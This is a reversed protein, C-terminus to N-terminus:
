GRPARLDYCVLETETRLLLRGHALAPLPLTTGGDLARFSALERPGDGDVEYLHVKGREDVLLLRGDVALVQGYGHRGEKWALKGTDVDLRALKGEDLGYVVGDLLVPEDFRTKFRPSRWVVEVGVSAGTETLRVLQSGKGYGASALVRDPALLIPQTCSGGGSVKWPFSWLETGSAPDLGLIRERTTAVVVDQGFLEGLQPTAYSMEESLAKWLVRGTGLELAHVSAAGQVFVADGQIRPSASLGYELNEHGEDALLSREWRLEGTALDLCRLEGTAGMAVVASGVIAPTARPGEKGAADYHRAKWTHDWVLEGSELSFAVVAEEDRRQEMTIALGMAVVISSYAQGVPAVWARPPGDDGWATAIPQETYVGDGRPGRYQTWYAAPFDGDPSWDGASAQAREEELADYDRPPRLFSAVGHRFSACGALAVAGLLVTGTLARNTRM